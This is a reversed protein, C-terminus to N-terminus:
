GRMEGALLAEIPRLSAVVEAPFKARNERLLEKADTPDFSTGTLPRERNRGAASTLELSM